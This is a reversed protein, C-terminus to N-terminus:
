RWMEPDIKDFPAVADEFRRHDEESWRGALQRLGNSRVAEEQHALGLALLDLAVEELTRGSGAQEARLGAELEAPLHNLGLYERREGEVVLIVSRRADEALARRCGQSSIAAVTPRLRIPTTAQPVRAPAMRGIAMSRMPKSGALAEAGEDGGQDVDATEDDVEGDGPDEQSSNQELRFAVAPSEARLIRRIFEERDIFRNEFELISFSDGPSFPIWLPLFGRAAPVNKDFSVGVFVDSPHCGLSKDVDCDVARRSWVEPRGVLFIKYWVFNSSVMGALCVGLGLIPPWSPNKGGGPSAASEPKPEFLVEEMPMQVGSLVGLAIKQEEKGLAEVITASGLILPPQKVTLLMTSNFRLIPNGEKRALVRLTYIALRFLVSSLVALAGIVTYYAVWHAAKFRDWSLEWCAQLTYPMAIPVIALLLFVTGLLGVDFMSSSTISSWRGLTLSLFHRPFIWRFFYFLSFPAPGAAEELLGNVTPQSVEESRGLFRVVEVPLVMRGLDQADLARLRDALFDAAFYEMFSKHAFSFCGTKEDRALFATTRISRELKEFEDAKRAYEPFLERM